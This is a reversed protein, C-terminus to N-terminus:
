AVVDATVSIDDGLSSLAECIADYGEETVGMEHGSDAYAPDIDMTISIKM